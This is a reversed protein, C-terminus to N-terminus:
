LFSPKYGVINLFAFKNCAQDGLSDLGKIQLFKFARLDLSLGLTRQANHESAMHMDTM